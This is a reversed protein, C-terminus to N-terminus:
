GVLAAIDVGTGVILFVFVAGGIWAYWWRWRHDAAFLRRMAFVIAVMSVVGLVLGIAPAVRGSVGAGFGVLPVIIYTILCRVASIAISRSFANQAGLVSGRPTDEPLRLLRRMRRDADSRIPTPIPAPTTIPQTM